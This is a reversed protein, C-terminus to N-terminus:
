QLESFLLDRQKFPCSCSCWQCHLASLLLVVL